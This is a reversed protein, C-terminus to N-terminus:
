PATGKRRRGGPNSGKARAVEAARQSRATREADSVYTRLLRRDLPKCHGRETPEPKPIGAGLAWVLWRWPRLEDAQRATM